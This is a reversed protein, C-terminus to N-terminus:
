VASGQSQAKRSWTAASWGRVVSRRRKLRRLKCDIASTSCEGAAAAALIAAAANYHSSTMERRPWGERLWLAVVVEALLSESLGALERPRLLVAGDTQRMSVRGLLHAAAEAVM